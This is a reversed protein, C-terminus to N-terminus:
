YRYRLGLNGSLYSESNSGCACKVAQKVGFGLTINFSESVDFNAGMIMQAYTKKYRNAKIAFTTNSGLFGAVYDDGSEVFYQELKPTIYLFSNQGIYQRLDVGFEASAAHNTISQAEKAASGKEIYSPTYTYYYNLGLFPKVFFTNEYFSFIQGGSLSVGAFHRTFRASMEGFAQTDSTQETTALQGYFKLNFELDDLPNFSSYFGVQYNNSSQSLSGDKILANAYSFYVGLLAGDFSKQDYGVSIGFMGGGKSDIISAGGFANTWVGNKYPLDMYYLAPYVGGVVNANAFHKGNLAVLYSYPNNAAAIRTSIAMDNSVNIASATSSTTKASEISSKANDVLEKIAGRANNYLADNALSLGITDKINQHANLASFIIDGAPNDSENYQALLEADTKNALFNIDALLGAQFAKLLTEDTSGATVDKLIEDIIAMDTQLNKQQIDKFTATGLSKEVIIANGEQKLTASFLEDKAEKATNLIANSFNFSKSYQEQLAALSKSVKINASNGTFDIFGGASSMVVYRLIPKDTRSVATIINFETNTITSKGSVVLSSNITNASTEYHEILSNEAKFDGNISLTPASSASTGALSIRANTLTTNATIKSPLFARIQATSKDNTDGTLTLTSASIDFAYNGNAGKGLSAKQTATGTLVIASNPASATIELKTINAIDPQAKTDAGLASTISFDVETDNSYSWFGTNNADQTLDKDSLDVGYGLVVVFVIFKLARIM